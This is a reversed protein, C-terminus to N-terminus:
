ACSVLLSEAREKAGSRRLCGHIRVTGHRLWHLRGTPLILSPRVGTSVSMSPPVSPVASALDLREAVAKQHRQNRSIHWSVPQHWAKGTLLERLRLHGGAWQVTLPEEIEGAFDSRGVADMSLQDFTIM